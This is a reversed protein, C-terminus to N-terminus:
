SCKRSKYDTEKIRFPPIGGLNTASSTAEANRPSNGSSLSALRSRLVPPYEFYNSSTSESMDTAKSPASQSSILNTQFNLDNKPLIHPNARVDETLQDHKCVVTPGMERICIGTKPLM